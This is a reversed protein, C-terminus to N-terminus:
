QRQTGKDRQRETSNACSGTEIYKRYSGKRYLKKTQRWINRKGRTKIDRESEMKREEM